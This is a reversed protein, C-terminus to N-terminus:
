MRRFSGGVSMGRFWTESPYPVLHFNFSAIFVEIRAPRMGRSFPKELSEGRGGGTEGQSVGEFTKLPYGGRVTTSKIEFTECSVVSTLWIASIGCCM